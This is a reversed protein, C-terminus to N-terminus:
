KGRGIETRQSNHSLAKLVGVVDSVTDCGVVQSSALQIGHNANLTSVLAAVGLSALGTDQLNDKPEPRVGTLDEIAHLVMDTVDYSCAARRRCTILRVFSLWRGMLYKNSVYTVVISFAVTLLIVAATELVGLQIPDPSFWEYGPKRQGWWSGKVSISYWEFVPQHLLYISYSAPSLVNVLFPNRCFWATFGRGVALGYLWVCLVPTMLGLKMLRPELLTLTSIRHKSGVQFVILLVYTLVILSSLLDTIIAWQRASSKQHPQAHYKSFTLGLMVGCAFRIAWFPPFMYGAYVFYNSLEQKSRVSLYVCEMFVLTLYHLSHLGLHCLRTARLGSQMAPLLRRHISPFCLVCFQYASSFWTYYSIHWVVTGMPWAQLTFVMIVLSASWTGGWSWQLATARCVELGGYTYPEFKSPPCMFLRNICCFASAILYILHIPVLRSEFFKAYGGSKIPEKISAAMNFGALMVFCLVGIDGITRASTVASSWPDSEPSDEFAWAHDGIHNLCVVISLIFRIGLTADDLGSTGANETDPGKPEADQFSKLLSDRSAQRNLKNTPTRVIEDESRLIVRPIQYAPVGKSVFLQRLETSLHDLDDHSMNDKPVVAAGVVENLLENPIGFALAFKVSPHGYLIEEIAFPSVQEGGVKILEKERGTLHLFSDVDLFGVDGTRFYKEGALYFFSKANAEENNAYGKTVTPGSICIEGVFDKPDRDVPCVPLPRLLRDVIAVTVMPIGVSGPHSLDYGVPPQSIPMQETMSYTPLVPCGWFEQMDRASQSSLSAAGSRIFRLSHALTDNCSLQKVHQLLALHITPVASYWTPQPGSSRCLMRAFSDPQFGPMCITSGGSALTALISASLGGIHFLPMANICIDDATLGLSKAIGSGNAVVSKVALPVVKPKSTTGSTRLFLHAEVSTDLPASQADIVISCQNCFHFSGAFINSGEVVVLGLECIGQQRSSHDIAKVASLAKEHLTQSAIVMRASLQVFADHMDDQTSGAGLPAASCQTAIVVFMVAAIAGEEVIYTVIDDARQIGFRRLNGEGNIFTVLEGYTCTTEEGGDWFAIKDMNSAQNMLVSMISVADTDFWSPPQSWQVTHQECFGDVAEIVKCRLASGGTPSSCTALPMGDPTCLAIEPKFKALWEYMHSHLVKDAGTERPVGHGADMYLTTAPLPLFSLMEESERKFPDHLGMCFLSEVSLMQNDLLRLIRAGAPCICLCPPAVAGGAQLQAAAALAIAAGQSFGYIFDAKSAKEAVRHVVETVESSTANESVWNFFPGSIGFMDEPRGGDSDILGDCYEVDFLAGLGLNSIQMETVHSNSMRGHLALLRPRANTTDQSGHTEPVESGLPPEDSMQNHLREIDQLEHQKKEDHWEVATSQLPQEVIDEPICDHSGQLDHGEIHEEAVISLDWSPRNLKWSLQKQDVTCGSGSTNEGKDAEAQQVDPSFEPPPEFVADDAVPEPPTIRIQRTEMPFHLCPSQARKRPAELLLKIPDGSNPM